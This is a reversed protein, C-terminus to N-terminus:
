FEYNKKRNKKGNLLKSERLSIKEYKEIDFLANKILSMGSSKGTSPNAILAAYVVCAENQCDDVRIITENLLFSTSTLLVPLIFEFSTGVTQSFPFLIVILRKFLIFFVGEIKM